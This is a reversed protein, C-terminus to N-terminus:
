ILSYTLTGWWAQCTDYSSLLAQGEPGLTVYGAFLNGATWSKVCVISFRFAAPPAYSTPITFVEQSTFSMASAGSVKGMRFPITVVGNKYYGVTQELTLNSGYSQTTITIPFTEALNPVTTDVDELINEIDSSSVPAAILHYQTGDYIFTLTSGADWKLPNTASTVVGDVFIKKAGKSNINLTPAAATNATSFYISVIGGTTLAYSSLTVVKAATGAATSCTGRGQGLSANSYTTNDNLWNNIVWNTGDYTLAVVSGAQWSTAASTSPATTGYRMISKQAILTTSGQTPSATTGSNNYVTIKPSAITNANTFKVYITLGNVLTIANTINPDNVIVIKAATGAATACTCYFSPSILHTGGDSTAVKSIVQGAM